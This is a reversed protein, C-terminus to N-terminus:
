SGRMAHITDLSYAVYPVELLEALLDFASAEEAQNVMQEHAEASEWQEIEFIRHRQDQDQLLSVSECGADLLNPQFDTLFDLLADIKDSKAQYSVIVTFSM